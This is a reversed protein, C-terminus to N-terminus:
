LLWGLVVMEAAGSLLVAVSLVYLCNVPKERMGSCFFLLAGILFVNLLLSAMAPLFFQKMSNLLSTAIGILCIMICYPMVVPAALLALKWRATTVYPEILLAPLAVLVTILSLLFTLWIVITSFKRRASLCGEKELTHSIMPILATGLAGEGLIRRFLNPLTFALAWASMLMGGGIFRATLIERVLGLIRSLFTAGSLGMTSKFVGQDSAM